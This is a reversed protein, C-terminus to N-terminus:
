PELQDHAYLARQAVVWQQAYFTSFVEHRPNGRSRLLRMLVGSDPGVLVTDDGARCAVGNRIAMALAPLSGTALISGSSM